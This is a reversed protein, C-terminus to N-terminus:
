ESFVEFVTSEVVHGSDDIKANNRAMNQELAELSPAKCVIRVQSPDSQNVGRTLTTINDANLQAQDADFIKVWEDFKTTINFTIHIVVM